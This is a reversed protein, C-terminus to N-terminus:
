CVLAPDCSAHPPCRSNSRQVVALWTLRGTLNLQPSTQCVVLLFFPLPLLFLANGLCSLAGIWQFPRVTALLMVQGFIWQARVVILAIAAVLAARRLNIPM